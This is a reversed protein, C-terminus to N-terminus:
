STLSGRERQDWSFEVVILLFDGRLPSEPRVEEIDCNIPTPDTAPGVEVILDGKRLTVGARALDRKRFVLKGRTPEMDGTRSPASMFYKPKTALNVQGEVEIRTRHHKVGVAERFDPDKVTTATNLQEIVIRVPNM